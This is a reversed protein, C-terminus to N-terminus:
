LIIAVKRRSIWRTGQPMARPRFSLKEKMDALAKLPTKGKTKSYRYANHAPARIGLIRASAARNLVHHGQRSVEAPLPRQIKRCSREPVARFTPHVRAERWLCLRILPGMGRPHTPIGYFALENDVQLNEPIGM